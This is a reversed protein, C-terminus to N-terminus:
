AGEPWDRAPVFVLSQDGLDNDDSHSVMVTGDASAGRTVITTTCTLAASPLLLALSVCCAVILQKM